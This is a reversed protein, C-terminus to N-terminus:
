ATALQEGVRERVQSAKIMGLPAIFYHGTLQEHVVGFGDDDMGILNVSKGEVTFERGLDESTTPYGHIFKAHNNKFNSLYVALIAAFYIKRKM